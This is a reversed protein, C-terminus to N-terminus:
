HNCGAQGSVDSDPVDLIYSRGATIAAVKEESVDIGTVHLGSRAMEVALPLGVYGLGVVGARAEGSRIKELLSM